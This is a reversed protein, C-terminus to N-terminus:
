RRALIYAHTHTSKHFYFATNVVAIGDPILIVRFFHIDVIKEKKRDRIKINGIVYPNM